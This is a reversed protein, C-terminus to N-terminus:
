GPEIRPALWYDVSIDKTRYEIRCPANKKLFFSMTEAKLNMNKLFDIPLIVNLEACALGTDDSVEGADGMGTARLKGEVSKFVVHSSALEVDGIWGFFDTPSAKFELANEVKPTKRINHALDLLGVSFEKKGFSLHLKNEETSMAVDGTAKGVVQKLFKINVGLKEVVDPGETPFESYDVFSKRPVFADVMAIQSPDMDRIRMGDAKFELTGEDILRSAADVVYKLTTASIKAKMEIVRGVYGNRM